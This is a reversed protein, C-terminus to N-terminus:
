FGELIVLRFFLVCFLASKWKSVANSQSPVGFRGAIPRQESPSKVEVDDESLLKPVVFLPQKQFFVFFFFVFFFFFFFFFFSDDFNQQFTTDYKQTTRFIRRRRDYVTTCVLNRECKILAM